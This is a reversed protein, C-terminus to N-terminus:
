IDEEKRPVFVDVAGKLIIYFKDGKDGIHFIAKGPHFIEYKLYRMCRETFM